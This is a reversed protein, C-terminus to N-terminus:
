YIIKYKDLKNKFEEEMNAIKEEMKSAKIDKNKILLEKVKEFGKNLHGKESIIKECLPYYHKLPLHKYYDADFTEKKFFNKFEKSKGIKDHFYCQNIFFQLEKRRNEIFIRDKLIKSKIFDKHSLRPFICQPFRFKLTKYFLYFDKYKRSCLVKNETSMKKLFNKFTNNIDNILSLKYVDYNLKDNKGRVLEVMIADKQKYIIIENGINLNTKKNKNYKKDINQNNDKNSEIILENDNINNNNNDNIQNKNEDKNIEEESDVCKNDNNLDNCDSSM